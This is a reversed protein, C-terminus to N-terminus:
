KLSNEGLLYEVSYRLADPLDERESPSLNRFERLLKGAEPLILIPSGLLKDHLSNLTQLRETSNGEGYHLHQKMIEASLNTSLVELERRSLEYRSSM